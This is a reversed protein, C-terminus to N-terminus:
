EVESRRKNQDDQPRGKIDNIARTQFEDAVLGVVPKPRAMGINTVEVFARHDGDAATDVAFGAHRLARRATRLLIQSDEVLLVRIYSFLLPSRWKLSHLPARADSGGKLRRQNKGAM